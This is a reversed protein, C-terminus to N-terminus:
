SRCPYKRIMMAKMAAQVSVRPRETAPISRMAALLDDSNMSSGAPPCYATPKGAASQALREAKLARGANVAESKLLGLDGSFMALPGRASLADAKALFTAVDMANASSGTAVLALAVMIRRM